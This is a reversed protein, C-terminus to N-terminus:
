DAIRRVLYQGASHFSARVTPESAKAELERLFAIDQREGIAALLRAASKQTDGVGNRAFERVFRLSSRLLKTLAESTRFPPLKALMSLTGMATAIIDLEKTLFQEVCIRAMDYVLNRDMGYSDKERQARDRWQEVARRMAHFAMKQIDTRKDNRLVWLIANLAVTGPHKAALRCFVDRIGVDEKLLSMLSTSAAPLKARTLAFLCSESIAPDQAERQLVLIARQGQADDRLLRGLASAAPRRVRPSEGRDKLLAQFTTIAGIREEPKALRSAIQQAGFAYSGRELETQASRPVQLLEELIPWAAIVHLKGLASASSARAIMSASRLASLLTSALGFRDAELEMSDIVADMAGCASAIFVQELDDLPQSQALAIQVRENLRRLARENAFGSLAIAAAAAAEPDSSLLRKELLEFAAPNDCQVLARGAIARVHPDPDIKFAPLLSDLLRHLLAIPRPQGTDFSKLTSAGIAWIALWRIAPSSSATAEAILAMTEVTTELPRGEASRLRAVASSIEEAKGVRGEHVKTAYVIRSALGWDVLGGWERGSRGTQRQITDLTRAALAWAFELSERSISGPRCECLCDLLLETIEIKSRNPSADIAGESAWIRISNFLEGPKEFLGAAMWPVSSEAPNIRTQIEKMLDMSHEASEAERVLWGAALFELLTRHLFEYNGNFGEFGTLLGSECVDQYCDRHKFAAPIQSAEIAKGIELPSFEFRDPHRSWLRWGVEELLAPFQEIQAQTPPRDADRARKAWIGQFTEFTRRFFDTRRTIGAFNGSARPPELWLQAAFMLLVPICILSELPPTQAIAKQFAKRVEKDAFWHGIAANLQRPSFPLLEWHPLFPAEGYDYGVKRAGLIIACPTQGYLHENLKALLASRPSGQDALAAGPVEDLGDIVLAGRGQRFMEAVWGSMEAEIRGHHELCDVAAAILSVGAAMEAAIESARIYLAVSITHEPPDSQLQISLYSFSVLSHNLLQVTKGFGANGLLVLGAPNAALDGWDKDENPAYNGPLSIGRFSRMVFLDRLNKRSRSHCIQNLYRSESEVLRTFVEQLTLRRPAAEVASIALDATARSVGDSAAAPSLVPNAMPAPSNESSSVHAAETAAVVAAVVSVRTAQNCAEVWRALSEERSEIFKRVLRMDASGTEGNFARAWTSSLDKPLRRAQKLVQAVVDQDATWRYVMARNDAYTFLSPEKPWKLTPATVTLLITISKIKEHGEIFERFLEGPEMFGGFLDGLKDLVNQCELFVYLAPASGKNDQKVLEKTLRGLKQLDSQAECHVPRMRPVEGEHASIWRDILQLACTEKGSNPPGYILLFKESDLRRFLKDVLDAFPQISNDRSLWDTHGKINEIWHADM